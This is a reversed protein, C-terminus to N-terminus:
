GNPRLRIDECSPFSPTESGCCATMRPDPGAGRHRTACSGTRAAVWSCRRGTARARRVAAPQLLRAWLRQYCLPRANPRARARDGHDPEATACDRRLEPLLDRTFANTAVVVRRAEIPGEATHALHRDPGALELRHVPLRTYLEVGKELACRLLGCVYMFPDYTGDGPIFRGIYSTQIGFETRIKGRRGCSSRGRRAPCRADGGPLPGGGAARHAGPVAVRPSDLPVRHRGPARSRPVAPPQAARPGVGRLGPAGAEAGLVEIPLGPFCRRLFLFRERALGEYLGISNEPITEFTGANRGSAEGAPDGRDIAVIRRGDRQAAHALHYATSAGILGVGVILIDVFSPLAAHSRFGALPHGGRFWFPEDDLPLGLPLSSAVGLRALLAEFEARARSTFSATAEFAQLELTQTPNARGGAGAAICSAALRRVDDLDVRRRAGRIDGVRASAFDRPVTRRLDSTAKAKRRQNDRRSVTYAEPMHSIARVPEAVRDRGRWRRANLDLM